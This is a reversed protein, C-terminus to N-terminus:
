HLDAGRWDADGGPRKGARVMTPNFPETWCGLLVSIRDSLDVAEAEGRKEAWLALIRDAQGSLIVNADSGGICSRRLVLDSPSKRLDGLAPWVSGSADKAPRLRGDEVTGSNEVITQGSYGSQVELNM